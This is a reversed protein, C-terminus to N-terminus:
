LQVRQSKVLHESCILVLKCLCIQQVKENLFSFNFKTMSVFAHSQASRCNILGSGCSLHSFLIWRLYINRNMLYFFNKLVSVVEHSVVYLCHSFSGEFFEYNFVTVTYINLYTGLILLDNINYM